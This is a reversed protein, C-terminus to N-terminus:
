DETKEKLWALVDDYVQRRNTENLMEHRGGTYMNLKVDKCGKETYLRYVQMVGAGYDGVPDMTGSFILIPMDKKTDEYTKQSNALANIDLLDKFGGLTFVFSCYKDRRYRDVMESDRSIWDSPTRPNDIKKLYEGFAMKNVMQSRYRDGKFAIMARVIKQGAATMKNHGGTGSIILGDLLRPYLAAFSRAYFSGMSHGLLFLKKGPNEERATKATHALDALVCKYGDKPAFYGLDEDSGASGKHGLHDNAYVAFGEGALFRAFDEYRGIHEVMGHSIQLVAKTPLSDDYIKWGRIINTGNSSPFSFDSKIVSM